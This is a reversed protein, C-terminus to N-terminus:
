IHISLVSNNSQMVKSNWDWVWNHPVLSLRRVVLAVPLWSFEILYSFVTSSLRCIPVQWLQKCNHRYHRNNSCLTGTCLLMTESLLISSVRRICDQGDELGSWRSLRASEKEAEKLGQEKLTSQHQRQRLLNQSDYCLRLTLGIYSPAEGRM